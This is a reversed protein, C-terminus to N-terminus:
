PYAVAGQVVPEGLRGAAWLHAVALARWPRWQDGPQAPGPRGSVRIGALQRGSLPFADPEGLRLAVHHATWAGVGPIADAAAPVPFRRVNRALPQASCGPRCCIGTTVVGAVAQM